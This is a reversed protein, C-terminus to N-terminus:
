GKSLILRYEPFTVEQKGKGTIKLRYEGPPLSEKQLQLSILQSAEKGSVTMETQWVTKTGSVIQLVYTQFEEAPVSFVLTFANQNAGFTVPITKEESDREIRLAYILSPAAVPELSPEEVSQGAPPVPADTSTARLNQLDNQLDSVERKLVFSQYAPYALVAIVVLLLANAFMPLPFSRPPLALPVSTKNLKRRGEQYILDAQAADLALKEATHETEQLEALLKVCADCSKLHDHFDEQEATTLLQQFYRQVVETRQCDRQQPFVDEYHFRQNTSRKEKM